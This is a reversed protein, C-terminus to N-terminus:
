NTRIADRTPACSLESVLGYHDSPWLPRGAVRYMRNAIV